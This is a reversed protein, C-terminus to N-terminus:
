GVEKGSGQPSPGDRGLMLGKTMLAPAVANNALPPLMSVSVRDGVICRVSELTRVSDDRPIIFDHDNEAGSTGVGVVVSGMDHETTCGTSSDEYIIRSVQRIGTPKRPPLAGTHALVHM